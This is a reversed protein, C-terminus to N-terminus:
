LVVWSGSPVAQFDVGCDVPNKPFSFTFSRIIINFQSATILNRLFPFLFSFTRTIINFQLTIILNRLFLFPLFSFTSYVGEGLLRAIQAIHIKVAAFTLVLIVYTCPNVCWILAVAAPTPTDECYAEPISVRGSLILGSLMSTTM